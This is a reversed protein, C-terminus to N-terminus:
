DRIYVLMGDSGYIDTQIRNTLEYDVLFQPDRLLGNRGYVELLVLFDPKEQHILDPPIAYNTVYFDDALPYFADSEPSILGVTDLIRAGTYYGLVGIDGAALTQEERIKGRLDSAVQFYVEELKIYAMKPAPRDLGHDPHLTWGNLSFGFAVMACIALPIPSRLTRGLVEIGFFIGLFYMPLPPTLYWRFILPNAIAFALLYLIPYIALPWIHTRERVIGRWGIMFLSPFLIIGIAISFSGFVLHSFFPTAYHQLLRVVGAEPPLHYALAKAAMSRPLPDGYYFWSIVSWSILPILFVAIEALPLHRKGSRIIRYARELGLPLLFLLADPRTLLSLSGILAAIVPQNNSHMYFTGLMLLIFLSTEMGGIAFTVSMPAATWILATAIGARRYGLNTSLRIILLCSIGDALASIVVAIEPYPARIGGTISGIAAILVAYLPTTTGLVWEGPNYVLGNGAILNQAYRFTIFADDVTRAGPILRLAIALIPIFFQPNFLKGLRM